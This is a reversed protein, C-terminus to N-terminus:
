DRSAIRSRVEVLAADSTDTVRRGFHTDSDSAHEEAMEDLEREIRRWVNGLDDGEAMSRHAAAMLDDASTIETTVEAAGLSITGLDTFRRREGRARDMFTAEEVCGLLRNWLGGAGIRDSEILIIGIEHENIVFPLDTTRTTNEILRAVSRRAATAAAPDLSEDGVDLRIRLLALPRNFTMARMVEDRLRDSAIDHPLLGMSASAGPVPAEPEVVQPARLDVGARGAVWSAGVLVVLTAVIEASSAHAFTGAAQGGIWVVAAATAIGASAGLMPGLCAALAVGAVATIIVWPSGDGVRQAVAGAVGTVLAILALPASRDIWERIQRTM